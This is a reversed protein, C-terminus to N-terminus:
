FEKLDEEDLPFVDESSRKSVTKAPRTKVKRSVGHSIHSSSGPHSIHSTSEGVM